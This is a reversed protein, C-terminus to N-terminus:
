RAVFLRGEDANDGVILPVPLVTKNAIATADDTPLLWGDVTPGFVRPKDLDRISPSREEAIKQLVAADMARLHSLRERHKRRVGRQEAIHCASAASRPKRSHRGSFLGGSQRSILLMTILSAGSSVGFVTVRSPDGGFAAINRKVWGLAARADLIGYNGSAHHNSEASLAPHALFGFIGTRYNFSVVVTGRRALAAGDTMAMSGSRGVYSGGYIWAM